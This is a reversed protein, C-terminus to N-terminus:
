DVRLIGIKRQGVGSITTPKENFGDFVVTIRAISGLHKSGNARKEIPLGAM